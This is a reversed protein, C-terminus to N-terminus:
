ASSLPGPYSTPTAEQPQTVRAKPRPKMGFLFRMVDFRRVLFEYLVMILVFSVLLIIAWRLVDPILWQVVFYGVCLLVTQHLIYFPLVAENAYRLFPTNFELHKKGFGLAALVWCWSGLGRLGFVVAYRPTAFSPWGFHFTLYLFMGISVMALALSPWRLRQASAQLRENSFLVFGAFLLWLYIVLSWGAEQEAMVPSSPDFLVLLLVMPLALAYIGGPLALLDDLRSLVRQGRGTFWRMLPYLVISFVFLYLLYWLHAGTVAFNGSAPNGGEYIGQFYHPLFQFYTGRFDGHTLRELYVQLSAHTFVCVLFPVLLRLVKDKVFKGAGSKGVAYFLSAGSIVFILPMMWAVAFRNWVQVWPYWTPNKIFWDEMNFFRTTHYVFVMLIALVRLWDLYYVRTSARKEM